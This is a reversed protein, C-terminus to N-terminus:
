RRARGAIFRNLRRAAEAIREEPQTLSIRIHGAAAAGFAEGPLVAMSEAEFLDWAFAEGSDAVNRVDIMVYMGGRSGRITVANQGRLAELFLARRRRYREAIEAVGYDNEIAAIAARSVFDNLGYSSVLNLHALDAILQRPGQLWGIRWGTMGHSKSLSNVILTRERMGPLTVPSLHARGPETHTWYVEDSVLWLDHDVCIGAIAALTERSYVAGTPNNPSNILLVRTEPRVAAAIDEARPEFGDEAHADVMTYDAGTVNIAGPYTAYFPSILIAHEGPNLTAQLAAFLAFQGSNTALIEEPSVELGCSRAALSAMAARLRPQGAPQSYHHHGARLAEICAAVTGDPTPFEHDGAAMILVDEGAEARALAHFHLEWGTKGGQPVLRALRDSRKPM